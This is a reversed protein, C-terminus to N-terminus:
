RVVGLRIKKGALRKPEKRAILHEELKTPM